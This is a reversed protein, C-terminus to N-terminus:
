KTLLNQISIDIRQRNEFYSLSSVGVSDLTVLFEQVGAGVDSPTHADSGITFPVGKAVLQSLVSMSPYSWVGHIEQRSATDFTSKRMGSTNLEYAIRHQAFQPLLPNFHEYFVYDPVSRLLADPHGVSDFLECVLLEELAKFYSTLVEPNNLRPLDWVKVHGQSVPIYHISGIVFDLDLHDLMRAIYSYAGPMYDVELGKLIKITGAYKAKAHDIEELYAQVESELIRNTEDIYFPAHDTITLIKVGKLIAANVLDDVRGVAHKSYLTHTHSDIM